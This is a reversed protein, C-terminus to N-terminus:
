GARQLHATAAAAVAESPALLGLRAGQGFHRCQSMAQQFASRIASRCLPAASSLARCHSSAGREPLEHARAVFAEGADACGGGFPRRQSPKRFSTATRWARRSPMLTPTLLPQGVAGRCRRRASLTAACSPWGTVCISCAAAGLRRRGLQLPACRPRQGPQTQMALSAFMPRWDATAVTSSHQRPSTDRGAGTHWDLRRVLSEPDATALKQPQTTLPRYAFRHLQQPAPRAAATAAPAAAAAPQAMDSGSAAVPM